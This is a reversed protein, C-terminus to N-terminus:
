AWNKHYSKPLKFHTAPDNLDRVLGTIGWLLKAIVGKPYPFACMEQAMNLTDGLNLTAHSFFPPVYALDGPRQTCAYLAGSAKVKAHTLPDESERVLYGPTSTSGRLSTGMAPDRGHLWQLVPKNGNLAVHWAYGPRTMYWRKRGYILGNFAPAHAHFPSGAALPGVSVQPGVFDACLTAFYAPLDYDELFKRSLLGLEDSFLIWPPSQLLEALSGPERRDPAMRKALFDAVPGKVQHSENLGYLNAYPVVGAQLVVPGYRETFNARTWHEWAKWSGLANRIIVPRMLSLYDRHFEAVTLNRADVVDINCDTYPDTDLGEFLLAGARASLHWGAQASRRDEEELTAAEPAGRSAVARNLREPSCHPPAPEAARRQPAAAAEAAAAHTSYSACMSTLVFRDPLLAEAIDFATRNHLDRVRLAAARGDRTELLADLIEPNGMVAAYHVPTRRYADQQEPAWGERLLLRVVDKDEPFPSRMRISAHFLASWGPGPGIDEGLTAGHRGYYAVLAKVSRLLGELSDRIVMELATRRFTRDRATIVAARPLVELLPIVARSTDESVSAIATQLLSLGTVPDLGSLDVRDGVRRLLSVTAEPKTDVATAAEIALDWGVPAGADVLIHALPVLQAGPRGRLLAKLGLLLLEPAQTSNRFGRDLVSRVLSPSCQDGDCAVACVATLFSIRGVQGPEPAAGRARPLLRADVPCDALPGRGVQGVASAVSAAFTHGSRLHRTLTECLGDSSGEPSASLPWLTWIDLRFLLGGALLSAVLVAVSM